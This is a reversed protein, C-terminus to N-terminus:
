ATKEPVLWDCRWFGDNKRQLLKLLEPLASKLTNELPWPPNILLLGTGVMGDAQAPNAIALEIRLVKQLGSAAIATYFADTRRLDKIPYWVLYQGTQWKRWAAALLSPLREIEDAAEFPPDIVVLGRREKPPLNAKLGTWGDLEVVKM